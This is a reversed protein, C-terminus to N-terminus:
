VSHYEYQSTDFEDRSQINEDRDENVQSRSRKTLQSPISYLSFEKDM